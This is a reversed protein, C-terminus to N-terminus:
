LRRVVFLFDRGPKRGRNEISVELRLRGSNPSTPTGAPSEFETTNHDGGCMAFSRDPIFSDAWVREQGVLKHLFAPVINDDFNRFVPWGKLAAIRGQGWEALGIALNSLGKGFLFRNADTPRLLALRTVLVYRSLGLERRAHVIELTSLSHQRGSLLQGLTNEPWLLLPSLRETHKEFDQVLAQLTEDDNVKTKLEVGFESPRFALSHLLEHAITNRLRAPLPHEKSEKNIDDTSIPYSEEDVLVAWRKGGAQDEDHPISALMGEVLLPRVILQAHFRDLLRRMRVFGNADAVENGIATCADAIREVDGPALM